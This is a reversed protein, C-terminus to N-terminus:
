LTALLVPNYFVYTRNPRSHLRGFGWFFGPRAQDGERVGRM